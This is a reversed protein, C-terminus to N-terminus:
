NTENRLRKIIKDAQELENIIYDVKDSTFERQRINFLAKHIHSLITTYDLHIQQIYRELDDLSINKMEL